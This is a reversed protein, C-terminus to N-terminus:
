RVYGLAERNAALARHYEMVRAVEGSVDAGYDRELLYFMVDLGLTIGGGTVVAGSEVLAAERTGGVRRMLEIPPTEGAFVAAKTTAEREELAGAAELIMAGTCISALRAGCSMIYKLTSDDAAADAWGPGGTVVLTSFRPASAFDNEAKVILGNACTLDGKRKAVGAFSLEPVVRKAISLVGFAAGVDIPEVGDYILIGYVAGHASTM